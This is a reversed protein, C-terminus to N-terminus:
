HKVTLEIIAVIAGVIFATGTSVAIMTSLANGSGTKMSENATIRLEAAALRDKLADVRDNSNEKNLRMQSETNSALTNVTDGLKNILGTLNAESKDASKANSTDREAVAQKAANFAKETNQDNQTFRDNVTEKLVKIIDELAKFKEMYLQKDGFIIGQLLERLAETTKQVDTPVRVLDDHAVEVAKEIGNIRVAWERNLTTATRDSISQMIANKDTVSQLALIVQQGIGAATMHDSSEFEPM